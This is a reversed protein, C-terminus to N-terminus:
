SGKDLFHYILSPFCFLNGKKATFWLTYCVGSLILDVQNYWSSLNLGLQLPYKRCMRCMLRCKQLPYYLNAKFFTVIQPCYDMSFHVDLMEIKEWESKYQQGMRSYKSQCLKALIEIKPEKCKNGTCIGICNHINKKSIQGESIINFIM